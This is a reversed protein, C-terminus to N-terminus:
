YVQENRADKRGQEYGKKIAERDIIKWVKYLAYALPNRIFEVRQAKEYEAKLTRVAKDIESEMM